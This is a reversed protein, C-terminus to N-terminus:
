NIITTHVQLYCTPLQPPLVPHRRVKQATSRSRSRTVKALIFIGIRSPRSPGFLCATGSYYRMPLHATGPSETMPARMAIFPAGHHVVKPSPAMTINCLKNHERGATTTGNNITRPISKIRIQADGVKKTM